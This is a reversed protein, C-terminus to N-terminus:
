SRWAARTARRRERVGVGLIDEGAQALEIRNEDTTLGEVEPRLVVGPFDGLEACLAGQGALIDIEHARAGRGFRAREPEASPELDRVDIVCRGVRDDDVEDVLGAMFADEVEELAEAPHLGSVELPSGQADIGEVWGELRRTELEGHHVRHHAHLAPDAVSEFVRLVAPLM